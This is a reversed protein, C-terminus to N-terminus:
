LAQCLEDKAFQPIGPACQIAQGLQGVLSGMMNNNMAGPVNSQGHQGILNELMGCLCFM